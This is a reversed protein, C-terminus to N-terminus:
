LLEYRPTVLIEVYTLTRSVVHPRGPAGMFSQLLNIKDPYLEIATGLVTAFGEFLGNDQFQLQGITGELYLFTDVLIETPTMILAVPAPLLAIFDVHASGEGTSRQLHMGIGIQGDFSLGLPSLGPIIMPPTAFLRYTSDTVIAHADGMILLPGQLEVLSAITLDSGDDNLRIFAIVENGALQGYHAANIFYDQGDTSNISVLEVEGGCAGSVVTGSRDYFMDASPDHFEDVINNSLWFGRDDDTIAAALDFKFRTLAPATGPIGDALAWNDRTSDNCNDVTDDGDKTWLYPISGPCDDRAILPALDNYDALIQAPTLPVDFTAFDLFAGGAQAAAAANSGIYCYAGLTPPTYTGNSGNLVGNLYLALGDPGWTFHLIILDGTSFTQASSNAVNTNDNLTFRDSSALFAARLTGTTFLFADAGYTTSAQGARWIIRISGQAVNLTDTGILLRCRGATRTSTSAHATSSWACGIFDGACLPTAHNQAELQAGLVYVSWGQQIAIGYTTTEPTIVSSTPAVLRYVGNEIEEYATDVITGGFHASCVTTDIVGRDPRMVYLSLTKEDSSTVTQLFTNDNPDPHQGTLHASVRASPYVFRLDTNAEAVDTGATWETDWATTNGFIPNTILNTTAQDVVLGRRQNTESGLVDYYAAGRASALRQVAGRAYPKIELDIKLNPMQHWSLGGQREFEARGQIVEYRLPTGRQGWLPDPMSDNFRYEVYLPNIEDGAENLLRQLARAARQAGSISQPDLASGVDFTWERNIPKRSILRGGERNIATGQATQVAHQTAPPMFGREFKYVDGRLNLVQAGKVFTLGTTM